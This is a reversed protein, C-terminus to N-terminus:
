RPKPATPKAPAAPLPYRADVASKLKAFAEQWAQLTVQVAPSQVAEQQWAAKRTNWAEVLADASPDTPQGTLNAEAWLLSRRSQDELSTRWTKDHDKLARGAAKLQEHFTEFEADLDSPLYWHPITSYRTSDWGLGKGEVTGWLWVEHRSRYHDMDACVAVYQWNVPKPWETQGNSDRDTCQWFTEAGKAQGLADVTMRARLQVAKFDSSALLVSSTGDPARMSLEFGPGRIHRGLLRLRVQGCQWSGDAQAEWAVVTGDNDYHGVPLHKPYSLGRDMQSQQDLKWPITVWGKAEQRCAITLGEHGRLWLDKLNRELRLATQALGALELQQVWAAKDAATLADACIPFMRESAYQQTRWGQEGAQFRIVQPPKGSELAVKLQVRDVNAKGLSDALPLAWVRETIVPAANPGAAEAAQAGRNAVSWTEMKDALKGPDQSSAKRTGQQVAWKGSSPEFSWTTGDADVHRLLSLTSAEPAPTKAAM